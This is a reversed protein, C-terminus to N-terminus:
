IVSIIGNKMGPHLTSSRCIHASSGDYSICTTRVLRRGRHTIRGLCNGLAVGAAAADNQLADELAQSASQILTHHDWRRPLLWATLSLWIVCEVRGIEAIRIDLSLEVNQSRTITDRGDSGLVTGM